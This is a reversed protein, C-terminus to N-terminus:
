VGLLELGGGHVDPDDAARNGLAVGRRVQRRQLVLCQVGGAARVRVPRREVLVHRPQAKGHTGLLCAVALELRM